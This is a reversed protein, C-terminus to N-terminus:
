PRPLPGPAPDSNNERSWAVERFVGLSKQCAFPTQAPLEKAVERCGALSM